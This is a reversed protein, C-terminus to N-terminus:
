TIIVDNYMFPTLIFTIICQWKASTTDPLSATTEVEKNM